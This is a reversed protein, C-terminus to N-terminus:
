EVTLPLRERQAKRRAQRRQNDDIPRKKSSYDRKTRRQREREAQQYDPLLRRFKKTALSYSHSGGDWEEGMMMRYFRAPLSDPTRKEKERYAALCPLRSTLYQANEANITTTGDFLERLRFEEETFQTGSLPLAADAAARAAARKEDLLKSVMDILDKNALYVALKEAPTRGRACALHVSEIGFAKLVHTQLVMGNLSHSPADESVGLTQLADNIAASVAARQAATQAATQAAGTEAAAAPQLAAASIATNLVYCPPQSPGLHAQPRSLSATEDDSFTPPPPADHWRCVCLLRLGCTICWTYTLKCFARSARHRVSPSAYARCPALPAYGSADRLAIQMTNNNMQKDNSMQKDARAMAITTNPLMHLASKSSM